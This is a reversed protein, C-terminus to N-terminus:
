AAVALRRINESVQDLANSLYAKEGTLKALMLGGEILALTTESFKEADADPRIEEAAMGQLVLDILFQKLKLVAQMAMASLAKHTDDAEAATNLIPCGGYAIMRPYLKRYAEPVALLKGLPTKAKDLERAMYVLLNDVSYQFAARALDDKNKFNGYIGGKTLGTASTLDALSTGSVGKKNFVPATKELIFRRTRDSKGLLTANM